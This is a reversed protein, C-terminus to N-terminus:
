SGKQASGALSEDRFLLYAKLLKELGHTAVEFASFLGEQIGSRALLYDDKAKEAFQVAVGNKGNFEQLDEKTRM